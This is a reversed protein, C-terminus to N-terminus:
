ASKSQDFNHLEHGLERYAKYRERGALREADNVTVLEIIIPFRAVLASVDQPMRMGLHIM